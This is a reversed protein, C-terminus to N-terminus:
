SGRELELARNLHSTVLTCSESPIDCTTSTGSIDLIRLNPLLGLKSPLMGNINQNGSVVLEQLKTLTGLESPLPGHHFDDEVVRLHTMNQCTGVSKEIAGGTMNESTDLVELTPHFAFFPTMSAVFDNGKINLIHIEFDPLPEGGVASSFGDFSDDNMDCVILKDTM